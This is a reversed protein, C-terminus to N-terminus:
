AQTAIAPRRHAWPAASESQAALQLLLTENGTRAVLQVGIPLDDGNWHLPLNIAPQGTGNQMATFPVYDVLPAFARDFDRENIDILGLKVPPYSLTPGLWVDYTEHFKAVQRAYRYLTQQAWSQQIASLTKGREYISLTLGELVDLSPTIGTLRSLSEVGYATAGAWLTLFATTLMEHDTEPIAEEVTHGLSECLAIATRMADDVDPSFPAGSAQRTSVAIRLGKPPRTIAELYSGDPTLAFYPDGYDPASIHDLIAASDRVSRTVVNDVSPGITSDAADPGPTVRGRSVKLGVLGNCSAPIRISGGGDNAHALPVAGAAVLAASGGSSGGTSHATNWPNRCPGYLRSETTPVLGFEPVNTKGLPILGAERFRKTLLSDHDSPIPPMFAAAQLTPMGEAFAFIDKLFFPVGAFPGKGPKGRAAARAPDGAVGRESAVDGLDGLHGHGGLPGEESQQGLSVVGAAVTVVGGDDAARQPGQPRLVARHVDRFVQGLEVGGSDDAPVAAAVPARVQMHDVPM